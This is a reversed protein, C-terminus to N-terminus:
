LRGFGDGYSDMTGAVTLIAGWFVLTWFGGGEFGGGGRKEGSTCFHREGGSNGVFSLVARVKMGRGDSFVPHM